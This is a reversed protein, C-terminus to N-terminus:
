TEFRQCTVSLEIYSLMLMFKAGVDKSTFIHCRRIVSLLGNDHQSRSLAWEHHRISDIWSDLSMTNSEPHIGALASIIADSSATSTRAMKDRIKWHMGAVLKKSNRACDGRPPDFAPDQGGPAPALNHLIQLTVGAETPLPSLTQALRSALNRGDDNLQTLAQLILQFDKSSLQCGRM